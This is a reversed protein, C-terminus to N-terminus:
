RLCPHCEGRRTERALLSTCALERSACHRRQLQGNWIERVRRLKPFQDHKSTDMVMTVDMELLRCQLPGCVCMRLM